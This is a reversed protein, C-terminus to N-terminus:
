KVELMFSRIQGSLNDQLMTSQAQFSNTVETTLKSLEKDVKDQNARFQATVKNVSDALGLMDENILKKDASVKKQLDEGIETLQKGWGEENAEHVAILKANAQSQAGQFEKQTREVESLPKEMKKMETIEAQLEQFKLSRQEQTLRATDRMANICTVLNKNTQSFEQSSVSTAHQKMFEDM